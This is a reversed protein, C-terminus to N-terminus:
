KTKTISVRLRSASRKTSSRKETGNREHIKAVQDSSAPERSLQADSNVCSVLWSRTPGESLRRVHITFRPRRVIAPNCILDCRKIAALIASGLYLGNVPTSKKKGKM